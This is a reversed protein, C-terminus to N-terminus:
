ENEGVTEFTVIGSSLLTYVIIVVIMVVCIGIFIKKSM